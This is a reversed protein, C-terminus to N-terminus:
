FRLMMDDYPETLEPSDGHLPAVRHCALLTRSLAAGRSSAVPLIDDGPIDRNLWEQAHQTDTLVPMRNHVQAAIGVSDRTLITATLLWTAHAQERPKWWSYLGLLLLPHNDNAHFYYPERDPTWEYYGSVPIIARQHRAAQAFTPKDLASEIRANFTPYPLKKSEAAPPILSWYAPALHNVGHADQGVIAITQTPSINWSRKPLGASPQAHLMQAIEPYDLEAAFRGCMGMLTTSASSTGADLCQMGPNARAGNVTSVARHAAPIGTM